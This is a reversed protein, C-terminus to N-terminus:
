SERMVNKLTDFMVKIKIRECYVQPAIIPGLTPDSTMLIIRGRSTEILFLRIRGKTPQIFTPWGMKKQRSDSYSSDAFLPRFVFSVSYRTNM